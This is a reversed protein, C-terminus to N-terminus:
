SGSGCARRDVATVSVPAKDGTTAEILYRPRSRAEDLARWLYEGLVGLMMMQLGGITLTVVMLSSWGQVPYGFFANGIILAAYFFGLVATTSGIYAMLRIPFYSFSTVSDVVLKLKKKLTWKSRGSARPQRDYLISEQRFGMWTLLAVISTNTEGFQRFAEVVRRDLLFSDAGSAPMEKMGVIWRMVLYYLRATGVKVTGEGERRARVAWVVQAGQRWKELMPELMAPPEQADAALVVACEGRTHHLGCASATHSGFNRAFRIGRVNPRRQSLATITAYTGDSSHDDVVVWEWDVDLRALTESLREYVPVLNEAENYAPSVISLVPRQEGPEPLDTTTM